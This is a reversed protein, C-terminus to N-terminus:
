CLILMEELSVKLRKSRKAKQTNTLSKLLIELTEKSYEEIRQTAQNNM